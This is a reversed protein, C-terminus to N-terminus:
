PICTTMRWCSMQYAESAAETGAGGLTVGIDAAKLAPGDNIGDGTMAAVKGARQLAQIIQLKNAPSVRSFIDVEQALGALVDPDM